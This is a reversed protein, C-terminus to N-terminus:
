VFRWKKYLVKDGANEMQLLLYVLVCKEQSFLFPSEPVKLSMRHLIDAGLFISRIWGNYDVVTGSLPFLVTVLSSNGVLSMNWPCYLNCFLRYLSRWFSPVLAPCLTCTGPQLVTCIAVCPNSSPRGSGWGGFLWLCLSLRCARMIFGLSDDWVARSPECRYGWCQPLLVM